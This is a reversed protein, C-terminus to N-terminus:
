IIRQLETSFTNVPGATITCEWFTCCRRNAQAPRVWSRSSTAKRFRWISRACFTFSSKRRWLIAANSTNYSLWIPAKMRLAARGNSRCGTGPARAPFLGGLSNVCAAAFDFYLDGSRNREGRLAFEGAVAYPGVRCDFWDCYRVINTKRGPRPHTAARPYATRRTGRSSWDRNNTALGFVGNRRLTRACRAASWGCGAREDFNCQVT